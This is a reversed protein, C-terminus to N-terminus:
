VRFNSLASGFRETIRKIIHLQVVSRIGPVIFVVDVGSPAHRGSADSISLNPGNVRLPGHRCITGPGHVPVGMTSNAAAEKIDGHLLFLIRRFFRVADEYVPAIGDAM